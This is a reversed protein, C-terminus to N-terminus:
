CHLDLHYPELAMEDLDVRNAFEAIKTEPVELTLTDFSGILWYWKNMSPDSLRM